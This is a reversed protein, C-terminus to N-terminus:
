SASESAPTSRGLRSPASSPKPVMEGTVRKYVGTRAAGTPTFWEHWDIPLGFKKVHAAMSHRCDCIPEHNAVYESVQGLLAGIMEVTGTLRQDETAAAQEGFLGDASFPRFRSGTEAYNTVYALGAYCLELERALFAEPAFDHTVLQAGAAAFLRVEAPTELRPGETTVVTKEESFAAGAARLCDGMARVLSPCFVPFQRLVGVASNEFFTGVRRTTRDILDGPLVIDGINFNHSIAGASALGVVARVGLDKLAYLNARHNVFSASASFGDVGYQPLLYYPADAETVLFIAESEGFPTHRSGVERINGFTKSRLRAMATGALCAVSPTM